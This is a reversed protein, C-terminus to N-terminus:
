AGHLEPQNLLRQFWSGPLPPLLVKRVFEREPAYVADDALCATLQEEFEAFTELKPGPFYTEYGFAIGRNKLFSEHNDKVFLIPKEFLLYDVYISSYDSIMADLYPFTEIVAKQREISLSFIREEDIFSRIDLNDERPHLRLFLVANLCDLVADLKTKDFGEFPFLTTAYERDKHTPAYLIRRKGETKKM